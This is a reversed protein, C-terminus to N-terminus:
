TLFIRGRVIYFHVGFNRLGIGVVNLEVYINGVFGIDQRFRHGLNRIIHAQQLGTLNQLVVFIKLGKHGLDKRLELMSVEASLIPQETVKDEHQELVEDFYILYVVDM